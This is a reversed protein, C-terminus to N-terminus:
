KGKAEAFMACFIQKALEQPSQGDPLPLKSIIAAGAEVMAPKVVMQLNGCRAIDNNM